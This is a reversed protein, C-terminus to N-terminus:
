PAPGTLILRSAQRPDVATVSGAKRLVAAMRERYVRALLGPDADRPSGALQVVAATDLQARALRESAEAQAVQLRRDASQRAQQLTWAADAQAEAVNREAQQSATLVANFAGVAAGPVASRLDVRVAAIGLGHGAQELERLRANVGKVLDVRLQERQAAAGGADGQAVLEPRAVLITDLDRAASLALATRTVLRDLAPALRERRLFFDGVQTVTYFVTLDMLVIGADGTLLYGSGALEDGLRPAEGDDEASLEAQRAAASRQLGAISQELVREPSPLLEVREFPPPLAWLLGPGAVRHVAGLRTVLASYEPSVAQVNSSAWRAGALLTLAYFAAFALRAAQLWPGAERTAGSM